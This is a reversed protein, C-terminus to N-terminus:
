QAADAGGVYDASIRVIEAADDDDIGIFPRPPLTVSQKTAWQEQNAGRARYRWRLGKATKARITGGFQHIAAYAVNSGVEVGTGFVNRTISSRLRGSDVLTQGQGERARRSPTWFLGYPGSGTEFRRSVTSELYAGVEDWLPRQNELRAAVRRLPALAAELGDISVKIAVGTM